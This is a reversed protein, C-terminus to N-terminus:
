DSLMAALFLLTAFTAAVGVAAGIAIGKGLGSGQQVDADVIRNLTLKIPSEPTRARRKVIIADDEVAMLTGTLRAGDDLKLRINTGVPLRSVFEGALTSTQGTRSGQVQAWVSHSSHLVLIATLVVATTKKM